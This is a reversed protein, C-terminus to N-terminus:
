ENMTANRFYNRRPVCTIDRQNTEQKRNANNFVARIDVDFVLNARNVVGNKTTDIKFKIKFAAHRALRLVVKRM